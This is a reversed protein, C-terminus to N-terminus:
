PTLFKDLLAFANQQGLFFNSNIVTDGQDSLSRQFNPYETVPTFAFPSDAAMISSPLNFDDAEIRLGMLEGARRGVAASLSLVFADAGDQSPPLALQGFSPLFIAAQDNRDANFIDSHQSYGFNPVFSNFLDIPDTSSSVFIPSFDQNEFDAPNTSFVVNLGNSAFISNLTTVVNLLIYQDVSMGNIAGTFGLVAASFGSLTTTLGGAELWNITGGQTEILFNQKAQPVTAAATAENQTVEITYDTNFVGQIYIAYKAPDTAIGGVPGTTVFTVFFDGNADYGYTIPGQTGITRQKQSIAKFESSSFVLAGDDVAIANTIDFLGFQVDGRFDSGTLRSFSGLNAGLDALKVKVTITRGAAITQGNNLVFVDADPTVDGAVGNHGKPGIASNITSTLNSGRRVSTIGTTNSGSVVDDGTGRVGDPGADLTFTYDGIRIETLDDYGPDSPNQFISNPGAFVLATPANLVPAGNGSDTSAGFGSDGDDFVQVTFAYAGTNNVGPSSEPVLGPVNFSDPFNNSLVIFYTGTTKILTNIPASDFIDLPRESPLQVSDATTGLQIDGTANFINIPVASASGTLTGIRIIQGARLTVKYVDTDAAPRFANVGHDPHDGLVGRVTYTSNIDPQGDPTQNNDLVLDLDVPGYMDILTPNLTTGINNVEAVLKDGADGVIVDQSFNATTQLAPDGQLRADVVSGRFTSAALTFRFVGPGPLSPDQTGAATGGGVPVGGTPILNRDTVARSFRLVIWDKHGPTPVISYDTGQILPILTLGGNRVESIALSAPVSGSDVDQNFVMTAFWEQSNQSMVVDQVRLPNSRTALKQVVFNGGTPPTYINGGVTVSGVVGTASVRYSQSGLNSGVQTGSIQVSSINSRGAAASDDFTGFYGDTGRLLGAVVDSQTFNGNVVVPGINASTISDANFGTGGPAADDGLDGGAQISTESVSGNAQVGGIGDRASIRSRTIPGTIVSGLFGGSRTQALNMSFASVSGLDREVNILAQDVGNIVINGAAYADIRAGGGGSAGFNGNITIDRVWFAANVSGGTFNGMTLSRLNMGVKISGTGAFNGTVISGAYADIVIDSDGALPANVVLTGISADDNTVIDFDTLTGNATVSLTSVFSTNVLLIRRGVNDYYAQGPGTFTITGSIGGPLNFAFPVGATIGGGPVSSGNNLDGDALTFNTGFRQVGASVTLTPSDAFVSVNSVGTGFTVARVYSTGLVVREDGTNYIGDAGASLGATVSVNNGSGGAIVSEIRGSRITDANIGNGGPRNDNGFSRVGSIVITNAINGTATVTFISSGAAIVTGLGSTLNDNRIDGNVSITGIARGAYIFAEFISGNSLTIRGINRGATIRPGQFTPDAVVGPPLQNRLPDTTPNGQSLAPNIGLDGFVGDASANVQVNWLIYDAHVSGMLHGSNITLQVLDGAHAEVAANPLLSGNNITVTGIGGSWSIIKGGFDGNISVNEIRGFAILQGTGVRASGPIDSVAGIVISSLVQDIRFDSYLQGNPIEISAVDGHVVIPKPALRDGINRGAVIRTITGEVDADLIIDRGATILGIDGRAGHANKATVLRANLDGETVEFTVIPGATKISGTYLKRVRVLELRGDPGSVEISTNTAEGTVTLDVLRGSVNISSSRINGSVLGQTLQGTTITSSRLDTFTQFNALEIDADVTSRTITNATMLFIHGLSDVNLDEVDGTNNYTTLSFLDGGVLVQNPFFESNNGSVTSNRYGKAIITNVDGRTHTLTADYFGKDALTANLDIRVIDVAWIQSRFVNIDTGSILTIRGEYPDPETDFATQLGRWFSDLQMSAIYAQDIVGGNSLTISNIGDTGFNGDINGPVNNAANIISKIYAGQVRGGIVNGIDDNAVIGTTALPSQTPALLGSGIDV